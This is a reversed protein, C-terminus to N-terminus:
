IKIGRKKKNEIYKVMYKGIQGYSAKLSASNIM